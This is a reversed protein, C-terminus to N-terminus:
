TRRAKASAKVVKDGMEHGLSDNIEKFRDMDVFIVGTKSDERYSKKIAQNLRDLFLIRNPLGTLIDHEAQYGLADKAKQVELMAIKQDTIDIYTGLVGITSKDESTLLTKSTNVWIQSGDTHTQQEEYSLKDKGTTLVERDDDIYGQAETKWPLEFDSKGIVDSPEKYGADQAFLKNCGLYISNEDKWFIRVPVTDIITRLIGENDALNKETEASLQAVKKANNINTATIIIAQFLQEISAPKNVFKHIGIEILEMLYDSEEHASMVIIAQKPNIEKIQRSMEKGDLKPMMIDTLIIDFNSKKYAELGEQGDQCVLISNFFQELTERTTTSLTIDDEVYLLDLDQCERLMDRILTNQNM